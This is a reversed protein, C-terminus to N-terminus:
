VNAHGSFLFRLTEAVNTFMTFCSHRGLTGPGQDTHQLVVVRTGAENPLNFISLSILIDNLEAGKLSECRKCKLVCVKFESYIGIDLSNTLLTVLNRDSIGINNM